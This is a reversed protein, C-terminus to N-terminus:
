RTEPANFTMGRAAGFCEDVLMSYRDGLLSSKWISRDRPKPTEAVRKQILKITSEKPNIQTEPLTVLFANYQVKRNPSHATKPQMTTSPRSIKANRNCHVATSVTCRSNRNVSSSLQDEWPSLELRPVTPRPLSNNESAEKLAMICLRSDKTRLRHKM